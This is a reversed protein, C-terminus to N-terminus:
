STHELHNVACSVRWSKYNRSYLNQNAQEPNQCRYMRDYTNFAGYQGQMVEKPFRYTYLPNEISKSVVGTKTAVKVEIKEPLVVSPLRPELAWDWYPARLDDAAKQYISRLDDPYSAALKKAEKVLTQQPFFFPNYTSSRPFSCVPSCHKGRVARCFTSALHHVFEGKVSILVVSSLNQTPLVYEM